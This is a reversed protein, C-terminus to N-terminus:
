ESQLFTLQSREEVLGKFESVGRKPIEPWAEMWPKPMELSGSRTWRFLGLAGVAPIPQVACQDTLVLGRPGFFWPSNHDKVIATVTAAGIIAGRVLDKPLPCNIGLSAMFESAEEYEDRTMGKAAHIAVPRPHFGAKSVAVTSRNEIDKFGACIAWAWPQRVSLALDPMEFDTDWNSNCM